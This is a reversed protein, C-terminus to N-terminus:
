CTDARDQHVVELEGKEVEVIDQSCGYETQFDQYSFNQHQQLFSVNWGFEGKYEMTEKETQPDGILRVQSTGDEIGDLMYRIKPSDTILYGKKLIVKASSTEDQQLYVDALGMYGDEEEPMEEIANQYSVIAQEFNGEQVYKEATKSSESYSQRSMMHSVALIGAAAAIVLLLAGVGIVIWMKRKSQKEGM